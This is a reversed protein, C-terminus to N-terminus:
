IGVNLIKKCLHKLTVGFFLYSFATGLAAGLIGFPIILVVNFVFNVLVTLVNIISEIEPRKTQSFVNGFIIMKGTFIISIGIILIVWLGVNYEAGMGMIVSLIKYAALAVVCLAPLFLHLYIRLHDCVNQVITHLPINNSNEALAPNISRRVVVYAEYVGSAFVSAFSYIGVAYDDRLLMGLCLVDVKANLELVMNAPFVRIGFRLHREIWDLSVSGKVSGKCAGYILFCISLVLEALSFSLGLFCPDLAMVSIIVIICIILVYRLSQFFAYVVMNNIANYYNLLVKNISFFVLGPLVMRLSRLLEERDSLLLSIGVESICIAVISSALILLVASKLITGQEDPTKSSSLYALASTHIGLSAVQSLVVYWAYVQNFLGLAAADYYKLIIINFAFGSLALIGLSVYNCLIGQSFRNVKLFKM